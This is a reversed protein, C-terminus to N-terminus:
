IVFIGGLIPDIGAAGHPPHAVACISRCRRMVFTPQVPGVGLVGGSTVTPSKKRVSPRSLGYIQLGRAM